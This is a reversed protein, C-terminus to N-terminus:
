MWPCRLCCRSLFSGRGELQLQWMANSHKRGLRHTSIDFKGCATCYPWISKDPCPKLIDGAGVLTPETSYQASHFWLQVNRRLLGPYMLPLQSDETGEPMQRFLLYYGPWNPIQIWKNFFEEYDPEAQYAVILKSMYDDLRDGFVSVVQGEAQSLTAVDSASLCHLESKTLALQLCPQRESSNGDWSLETSGTPM